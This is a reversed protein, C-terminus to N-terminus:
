SIIGCAIRGGGAEAAEGNAKQQDPLLHIIIASANGDFVSVPGESLTVRSTVANYIAEGQEDVELNPLDGLHYPHNAEVPTESGFPGPDFHGGSTSFPPDADPDCVGVAHIHLGHLGPTLNAPNGQIKGRIRVAQNDLQTLILTGNINTGAINVKAQLLNPPFTPRALELGCFLVLCMSIGFFFLSKLLSFKRVM